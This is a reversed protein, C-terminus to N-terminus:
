APGDRQPDYVSILSGKEVFSAGAGFLDLFQQQMDFGVLVNNMEMKDLAQKTLKQNPKDHQMCFIGLRQIEIAKQQNVVSERIYKTVGSWIMYFM